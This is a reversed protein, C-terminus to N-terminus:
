RFIFASLAALEVFGKDFRIGAPKEIKCLSAGNTDAYVQPSKIALLIRRKKGGANIAIFWERQKGNREEKVSYVLLMGDSLERYLRISNEIEKLSSLRFVASKQRFEILSRTYEFLKQRDADFNWKFANVSDPSNYSNRVFTGTNEGSEFLAPKSRACEQGAHLFPIGQSTFLIFNGLKIRKFLEEKQAAESEDLNCNFAINDRLTLGDHAELYQVNNLPTLVSYNQQPRGTINYFLQEINTTGRANNSDTNTDTSEAVASEDARSKSADDDPEATIFGRRAENMGGGKLLDRYEDNFVSVSATRSMMNQDMGLGTKSNYMKWGEGIFLLDKKIRRCSALGEMITDTDILGMLDFRFGDADYNKVWHVLSDIILKHMAAKETACDNGCGSASTFTGDDNLRFYYGPVIDELFETSAMHNYVVDLIIRLGKAHAAQILERLDRIRSYPDEPQESFWGEPSFYNHPDYGWNYNSNPYRDSFAQEREDNNYFNLLPMLQIHTAGLKKIYDLKEIFAKFSGGRNKTGTSKDITFDRVSVEYIIVAEKPVKPLKAKGTMTAADQAYFAKASALDVIAGPCFRRDNRYEAMSLSYPDLCLKPKKGRNTILFSYYKGDIDASKKFTEAFEERNIKRRWVGTKNSRKLELRFMPPKATDPTDFILLEVKRALPAWIAAELISEKISFHLGLKTSKRPTNLVCDSQTSIFAQSAPQLEKQSRCVGSIQPSSTSQATEATNGAKNKM